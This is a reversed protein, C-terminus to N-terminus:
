YHKGIYDPEEGRNKQLEEIKMELEAIKIRLCTHYLDDYGVNRFRDPYNREIQEIIGEIEGQMKESRDLLESTIKM